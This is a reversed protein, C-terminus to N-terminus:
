QGKPIIVYMGNRSSIKVSEGKERRDKLEQKVERLKGRQIFTLDDSVFVRSYNEPKKSWFSRKFSIAEEQSDFIVKIPRPKNNAKGLRIVKKPKLKIQINRSLENVSEEDKKRKESIDESESEVIGYIIVNSKRANRDELEGIADSINTGNYNKAEKENTKTKLREIEEKLNNIEQTDKENKHKLEEKMKNMEEKLANNMEIIKIMKPFFKNCQGCFWKLKEDNQKLAEFIKKSVKGCKLHFWLDCIDCQVGEDDVNKNCTGCIEHGEAKSQNM